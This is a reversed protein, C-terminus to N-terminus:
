YPSSEEGGLLDTKLSSTAPDDGVWIKLLAQNFDAGEITVKNTGNISFTTGKNPTYDFMLVDNENVGQYEALLSNIRNKLAKYESSSLNEEFGDVMSGVMKAREIEDYIIHMILRKSGQQTIVTNADTSPTEVYLAAAYIKFFFKYRIGAGNLKLDTNAIRTEFQVGGVEIASANFSLLAFIFLSSILRIM